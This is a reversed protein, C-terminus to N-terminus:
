PINKSYPNDESCRSKSKSLLSCFYQKETALRPFSKSYTTILWLGVKLNYKKIIIVIEAHGSGSGKMVPAMKIERLKSVLRRNTRAGGLKWAAVLTITRLLLDSWTMVSHESHQPYLETKKRKTNKGKRKEMRAKRAEPSTQAM